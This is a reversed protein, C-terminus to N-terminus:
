ITRFWPRSILPSFAWPISSLIILLGITFWIAQIRFKDQDAAKRKAKASGITILVIGTLMMTIHEIGFFRLDRIHMATKFNHLFYSVIPSIFYLWLGALLQVHAITATVHRVTNDFKSYPKHGVWGRYARFIAFLLSSLVLWRLLSHLALLITYM